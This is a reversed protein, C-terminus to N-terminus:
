WGGVAQMRGGTEGVRDMRDGDAYEVETDGSSRNEQKRETVGM